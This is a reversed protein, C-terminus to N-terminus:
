GGARAARAGVAALARAPRGAGRHARADRGAARQRRGAADRAARRGDQGRRRRGAGAPEDPADAALDAAIEAGVAQQGATLTFPLRADFADLLGGPVPPCPAAPRQVARQRRLALALQVGMAEDWVLRNKAAYQDAETEPVHIRRLARGLDSLGEARAAVRAVPRHPRRAARAGPARLARDALLRVGADGPLGLHLPPRGREGGAARVRPHTLQLKDSFVGSRARLVAGAARPGDGEAAQLPQLVHLRAPARARRHHRGAHAQRPPPAHRAHTVKEVEALM